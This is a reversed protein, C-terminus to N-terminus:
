LDGKDFELLQNNLRVRRIFWRLKIVNLLAKEVGMRLAKEVPIGEDLSRLVSSRFSSSDFLSGATVGKLSSLLNVQSLGSGEDNNQLQAMLIHIDKSLSVESVKLATDLFRDDIFSGADTGFILLQMLASDGAIGFDSSSLLTGLARASIGQDIDVSQLQAALLKGDRFSGADTGLKSASSLLLSTELYEGIDLSALTAFLSSVEYSSLFDSSQLISSLVLSETGITTDIQSFTAIHGFTDLGSGTEMGQNSTMLTILDLLSGIEYESILSSLLGVEAFSGVDSSSVQVALPEPNEHLVFASGLGWRAILLDGSSNFLQVSGLGWSVSNVAM